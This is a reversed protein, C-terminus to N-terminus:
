NSPPRKRADVVSMLVLDLVLKKGIKRLQGKVMFDAGLAGGIEALCSESEVGCLQKQAELTLLARIDAGSIVSFAETDRAARAITAVVVSALDDSVGAGKQLDMVALHPLEEDARAPGSGAALLATVLVLVLSRLARM